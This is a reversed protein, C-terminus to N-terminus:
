LYFMFPIYFLIFFLFPFSFFPFTPFSFSFSFTVYFQTNHWSNCFNRGEQEKSETRHRSDFAWLTALSVEWFAAYMHLMNSWIRWHSRSANLIFGLKWCLLSQWNFLKENGWLKQWSLVPGGSVSFCNPWSVVFNVRHIWLGFQIM